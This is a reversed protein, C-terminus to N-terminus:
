TKEALRKVSKIILITRVSASNASPVAHYAFNFARTGYSRRLGDPAGSLYAARVVTEVQARLDPALSAAYSGVPGQGGLLPEWYDAFSAYEMRVVLSGTEM